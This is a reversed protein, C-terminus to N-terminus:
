LWKIQSNNQPLEAASVQLNQANEDVGHVYDQGRSEESDCLSQLQNKNHPHGLTPRLLTKHERQFLFLIITNM